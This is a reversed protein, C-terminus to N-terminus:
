SDLDSSRSQNGEEDSESYVVDKAKNKKVM